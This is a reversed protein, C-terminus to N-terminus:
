HQPSSRADQTESGHVLTMADAVCTALLSLDNKRTFEPDSAALPFRIAYLSVALDLPHPTPNNLRTM